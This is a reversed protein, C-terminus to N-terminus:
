EAVEDAFSARGCAVAVEFGHNAGAISKLGVNGISIGIIWAPNREQRSIVIEPSVSATAALVGAHAGHTRVTLVKIDPAGINDGLVGFGDEEHEFSTPHSVPVM